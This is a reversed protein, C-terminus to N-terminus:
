PQREVGYEIKTIVVTGGNSVYGYVKATFDKGKAADFGLLKIKPKRGRAKRKGAMKAEQM